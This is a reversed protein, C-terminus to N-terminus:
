AQVLTWSMLLSCYLFVLDWSVDFLYWGMLPVLYVSLGSPEVSRGNKTEEAGEAGDVTQGVM